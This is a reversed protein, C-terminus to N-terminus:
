SLQQKQMINSDELAAQNIEQTGKPARAAVAKSIAEKSVVGTLEVLVGVRNGPHSYVEIVGETAARGARKAARAAGKKRLISAAVKYDGNTEELAKKAELVGAGTEERLEKIM